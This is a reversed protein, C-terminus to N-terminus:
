DTKRTNRRTKSKRAGETARESEKGRGSGGQGERGRAGEGEKDIIITHVLVKSLLEWECRGTVRDQRERRKGCVM